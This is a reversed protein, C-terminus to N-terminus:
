LWESEEKDLAEKITLIAFLSAMFTIAFFVVFGIVPSAVVWWSYDFNGTLKLTAMATTAVTVLLLTARSIIRATKEM